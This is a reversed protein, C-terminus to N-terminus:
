KLKKRATDLFHRVGTNNVANVDAGCNVLFEVTAINGSESANM